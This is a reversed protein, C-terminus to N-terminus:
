GSLHGIEIQEKAIASAVLLRGTPESQCIQHNKRDLSHSSVAQQQLIQLLVRIHIVIVVDANNVRQLLHM